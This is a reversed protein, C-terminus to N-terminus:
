TNLKGTEESNDVTGVAAVLLKIVTATNLTSNACWVLQTYQCQVSAPIDQLPTFM